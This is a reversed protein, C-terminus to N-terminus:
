WVIAMRIGGFTRSKSDDDIIHYLCSALFSFHLDERGLRKPECVSMQSSFALARIVVTASILFSVRDM